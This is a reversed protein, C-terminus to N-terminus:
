MQESVTFKHHKQKGCLELSVFVIIVFDKRPEKTDKHCLKVEATQEM